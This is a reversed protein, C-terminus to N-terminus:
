KTEPTAASVSYESAIYGTGKRIGWPKIAPVTCADAADWGSVIRKYSTNATVIKLERAWQSLTQTRGNITIYRCRRKNNAQESTTAWRCNTPEYNGNNDIRDISHKRTPKLGMDAFFNHFGELWRACVTIGRGGYNKYELCNPNLCRQRMSLYSTYESSECMSHKTSQKRTVESKYCGCSHSVGDVLSSAKVMRLTGCKCRCPIKRLYGPPSAPGLPGIVQWYDFTDDIRIETISKKEPMSM